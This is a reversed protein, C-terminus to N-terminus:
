LIAMYTNLIMKLIMLSYSYRTLTFILNNIIRYFIILYNNINVKILMIVFLIYYGFLTISNTEKEKILFLVLCIIVYSFCIEMQIYVINSLSFKHKKEKVLSIQITKVRKNKKTDFYIHEKKYIENLDESTVESPIPYEILQNYRYTTIYEYNQFIM